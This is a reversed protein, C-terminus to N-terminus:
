KLRLIDIYMNEWPYHIQLPKFVSVPPPSHLTSFIANYYKAPCLPISYGFNAKIEALWPQNEGAIVVKNTMLAELISLGFNESKSASLYISSAKLLAFKESYNVEGAFWVNQGLEASIKRMLKKGYLNNNWPGGIIWCFNPYVIKVQQLVHSLFELNKIPSFSCISLVIKKSLIEKPVFSNLKLLTHSPEPIVPPSLVIPYNTNIKTLENQELKSLAHIRTAQSLIKKELLHFYIKKTWKRNSKIAQELLAGAPRFIYPAGYKKSLKYVLYNPYIWCGHLHFIDFQPFHTELFFKFRPSWKWRHLICTPFAYVRHNKLEPPISGQPNFIAICHQFGQYNESNLLHFLIQSPGTSLSWVPVIHLIKIM